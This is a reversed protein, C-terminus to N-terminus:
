DSPNLAMVTRDAMPLTSWGGGGVVDLIGALPTVARYAYTVSVGISDPHSTANSRTCQAWGSSQLQFSLQRGDVTPGVGPVWVNVASGVQNGAADAKYVRIEGVRTLDGRIPSGASTLVREVASVVYEDVDACDPLASGDALAAGTRAGERSAYSLTLLHDFVFGFELLGLLLVLLVPLVLSLEVLSQGREGGRHRPTLRPTM